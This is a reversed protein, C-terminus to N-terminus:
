KACAVGCRVELDHVGLPLAVRERLHDRLPRHDQREEGLREGRTSRALEFRVPVPVVFKAALFGLDQGDRGVLLGLLGLKAPGDARREREDGVALADQDAKEADLQREDGQGLAGGEDDALVALDQVDVGAARRDVRAAGDLRAAQVLLRAAPM